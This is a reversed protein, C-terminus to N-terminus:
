DQKPFILRDTSFGLKKAQNILIELTAKPLQKTRSLIWLYSKNPGTVMSYAYDKKDLEIINYAGYFPGFFSIKLRGKDPQEIFYGEGEAKEWEGSQPNWGKNLVDIGGDARLTYTASINDLGREFRQDLRAIEYWTGLYRNIEFGEVPRVGEPVRTCSTLLAAILLFINM